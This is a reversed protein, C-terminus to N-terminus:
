ALEPDVCGEDDFIKALEQPTANGGTLVAVVKKGELNGAGEADELQFYFNSEIQDGISCVTGM